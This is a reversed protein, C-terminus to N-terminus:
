VRTTPLAVRLLHEAIWAAADPSGYALSPKRARNEGLWNFAARVGEPTPDFRKAYGAAEAEPRDTVRRLVATPLGLVCAEEVLGGSDTLIGASTAVCEVFEAYGLPLVFHLNPPRNNFVVGAVAPHVPWVIQFETLMRASEMIAEAVAKMKPIDRTLERRHLTVVLTNTIVNAPVKAYRALASVCTNGTVEIHTDAIGEALLNVRNLATAAYHWRSLADIERRLMEEPWPEFDCHSRVGAEIHAIPVGAANAAKAGAYASMTDGQVVVLAPKATAFATALARRALQLWRTVNGDSKLNLSQVNQCVGLPTGKLLEDHQGTLLMQPVCGRAQLEEVVPAVKIVEPRTGCVFVIETM